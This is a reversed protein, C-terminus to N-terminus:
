GGFNPKLLDVGVKTKPKRCDVLGILEHTLNGSWLSDVWDKKGIAAYKDALKQVQTLIRRSISIYVSKDNRNALSDIFNDFDEENFDINHTLEHSRLFDILWVKESAKIQDEYSLDQMVQYQKQQLWSVCEIITPDIGVTNDRYMESLLENLYITAKLTKARLDHGDTAYIADLLINLQDDPSIPPKDSRPRTNKELRRLIDVVLLHNSNDNESDPSVEHEYSGINFMDDWHSYDKDAFIGSSHMATILKSSDGNDYFALMAALVKNVGPRQDHIAIRLPRFFDEIRIADKRNSELVSLNTSPVDRLISLLNHIGEPTATTSLSQLLFDAAGYDGKKNAYALPNYAIELSPDNSKIKSSVNVAFGEAMKADITKGRSFRVYMDVLKAGISPDEELAYEIVTGVAEIAVPCQAIRCQEVFIKKYSDTENDKAASEYFAAYVPLTADFLSHSQEPTIDPKLKKIDAIALMNVSFDNIQCLDSPKPGEPCFLDRWIAAKDELNWAEFPESLQELGAIIEPNKGIPDLIDVISLLTNIRQESTEDTTECEAFHHAIRALIKEQHRRAFKQIKVADNGLRNQTSLPVNHEFDQSEFYDQLKKFLKEYKLNKDDEHNPLSTDTLM